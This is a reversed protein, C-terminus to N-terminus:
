KLVAHRQKFYEFLKEENLNLDKITSRISLTMQTLWFLWLWWFSTIIEMPVTILASLGVIILTMFNSLIYGSLQLKIQIINAAANPIIQGVAIIKSVRTGLVPKTKYRILKFRRLERQIKGAWLKSSNLTFFYYFLNASNINLRETQWQLDTLVADPERDTEIEIIRLTIM